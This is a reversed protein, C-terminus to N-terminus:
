YIKWKVFKLNKEGFSKNFNKLNKERKTKRSKKEGFKWETIKNIFQFFFHKQWTWTKSKDNKLNLIITNNGWNQNIIIKGLNNDTYKWDKQIINKRKM